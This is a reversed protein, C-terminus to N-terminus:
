KIRQISYNIQDSNQTSQAKVQFTQSNGSKDKHTFQFSDQQTPAVTSIVTQQTQVAPLVVPEISKGMQMVSFMMVGGILIKFPEKVLVKYFLDKAKRIFVTRAIQKETKTAYLIRLEDKTFLEFNKAQEAIHALTQGRIILPVKLELNTNGGLFKTVDFLDSKLEFENEKVINEAIKIKYGTATRINVQEILFQDEFKSNSAYSIELTAGEKLNFGLTIKDKNLYNKELLSFSSSTLSLRIIELASIKPNASLDMPIIQLNSTESETTHQELYSKKPAIDISTSEFLSACQLAANTHITMFLSIFLIFKNM